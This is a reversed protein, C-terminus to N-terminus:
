YWLKDTKLKHNPTCHFSVSTVHNSRIVGIIINPLRFHFISKIHFFNWYHSAKLNQTSPPTMGKHPNPEIRMRTLDRRNQGRTNGLLIKSTSPLQFLGALSYQPNSIFFNVENESALCCLILGNYLSLFRPVRPFIHMLIILCGLQHNKILYLTFNLKWIAGISIEPQIFFCTDIKLLGHQVQKHVFYNEESFTVHLCLNTFLKQLCGLSYRL